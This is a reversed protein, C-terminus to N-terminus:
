SLIIEIGSQQQFKKIIPKFIRRLHALTEERLEPHDRAKDRGM